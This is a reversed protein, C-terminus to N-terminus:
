ATTRAKFWEMRIPEPANDRLIGRISSRLLGVDLGQFNDATGLKELARALISLCVTNENKQYHFLAAATLILGQITDRKPGKAPHWIEELAEHAEWFREQNFLDVGERFAEDESREIARNDIIRLTKVPSINTEVIKKTKELGAQNEFLDFEIATSSVRLNGVTETSGVMKRIQSQLPKADKPTYQKKNELRVLFRM